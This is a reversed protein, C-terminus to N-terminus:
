RIKFNHKEGAILDIHTFATQANQLVWQTISVTRLFGRDIIFGERGAVSKGQHFELMMPADVPQSVFGAFYQAREDRQVQGYLPSSSWIYADGPNLTIQHKALGDWVLKVLTKNYFLIITFPEVGELDVHDWHEAPDEDTFLDLLVLGRSKKYPPNWVHKEFAGNLLVIANGDADAAFWTGGAKPEKPFAISRGNHDHFRPASAARGPQEDRNSTIVAGDPLPVFTVTCM